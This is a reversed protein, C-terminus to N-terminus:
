TPRALWDEIQTSHDDYHDWTDVAIQEVFEDPLNDPLRSIAQRVAEHVMHMEVRILEYPRDRHAAHNDDNMRQWDNHLAPAGHRWRDIDSLVEADWFLTHALLDKVSWNEDLVKEDRRGREVRDLLLLWRAWATDLRELLNDAVIAGGNRRGTAIRGAM